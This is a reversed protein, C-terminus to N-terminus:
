PVTTRGGAGVDVRTFIQIVIHGRREINARGGEERDVLALVFAVTGGEAEIADIAQLTSSGTTIVDDIVVASNGRAFNGEILKSRGHAKPSKRVSFTQIKGQPNDLQAAIGISLAIPDAGMTLGGVADVRLNRATATRKIMEWGVRGVLVAGRPDLTTLKADVYLDSKAGSALTFSGHCVSKSLLLQLLESKLAAIEAVQAAHSSGM